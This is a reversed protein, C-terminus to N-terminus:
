KHNIRAFYDSKEQLTMPKFSKSPTYDDPPPPVDPNTVTNGVLLKNTNPNNTTTSDYFEDNDVYKEYYVHVHGKSDVCDPWIRAIISEVRKKSAKFKGVAKCYNEYRKFAQIDFLTNPIKDTDPTVICDSIWDNTSTKTPLYKGQIEKIKKGVETQPDFYGDELNEDIGQLAIDFKSLMENLKTFDKPLETRQCTFDFFRRMSQPDYIIDYLHSNAVSIGVFRIKVTAQQQGGMLRTNMVDGTLIQKLINMGNDSFSEEAYGSASDGSALEEFFLIYNDTFKKYERTSDQFIQIGPEAVIDKMFEFMRHIMQTKGIGTAGYFNLWIHHRIPKTILRRKFAWMWQKFLIKFIELDEKIQLHAHLFELFEDTFAVSDPNYKVRNYVNSLYLSAFEKFLNNMGAKIDGSQFGMDADHNLSWLWQYLDNTDANIELGHKNFTIENGRDSIRYPCNKGQLTNYIWSACIDLDAVKQVKPKITPAMEKLWSDIEDQSIPDDGTMDLVQNFKIRVDGNTPYVSKGQCKIRGKDTFEYNKNFFKIFRDKM